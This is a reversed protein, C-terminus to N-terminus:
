SLTASPRMVLLRPHRAAHFIARCAMQAAGVAAWMLRPHRQALTSRAAMHLALLRPTRLAAPTRAAMGPRASGAQGGVVDATQRADLLIEGLRRGDGLVLLNGHATRGDDFDLKDGAFPLLNYASRACFRM